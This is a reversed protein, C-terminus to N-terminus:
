KGGGDPLRDDFPGIVTYPAYDSHSVARNDTFSNDYYRRRYYSGSVSVRPMLEQQVSAEYSWNKDRRLDPDMQDTGALTGFALNRTPGFEEFQPTGDPNVVTGDRNLDIWSRSDSRNYIPNFASTWDLGHGAIYKGASAKVATKGTGFM